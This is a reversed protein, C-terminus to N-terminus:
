FWFHGSFGTLHSFNGYLCAVVSGFYRLPYRPPGEARESIVKGSLKRIHVERAECDLAAASLARNVWLVWFSPHILRENKIERGKFYMRQIKIIHKSFVLFWRHIGKSWKVILCSGKRCIASIKLISINVGVGTNRFRRYSTQVPKGKWKRTEDQSNRATSKRTFQSTFITRIRFHVGKRSTKCVTTKKFSVRKVQIVHRLLINEKSSYVDQQFWQVPAAYWSLFIPTLIHHHHNFIIIM